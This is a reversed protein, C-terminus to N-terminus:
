KDQSVLKITVEKGNKRNLFTTTPNKQNLEIPMRQFVEPPTADPYYKLFAWQKLVQVLNKKPPKYPVIETVGSGADLIQGPTVLIGHIQNDSGSSVSIAGLGDFYKTIPVVLSTREITIPTGKSNDPIRVLFEVSAM